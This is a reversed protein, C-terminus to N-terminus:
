SMKRLVDAAENFFSNINDKQELTQVSTDINQAATKVEEIDSSLNPFKEMQIKGMANALKTAGNKIHNAHDTQMPDNTIARADNRIESIDTTINVNNEQAKYDVANILHRLANNTYVHDLGMRSTNGIHSLYADVSQNDATDPPTGDEDEPWTATDDDATTQYTTDVEETNYDDMDDMDDNNDSLLFYLIVGLIILGLLIWPWVPKKKEIKIEAM